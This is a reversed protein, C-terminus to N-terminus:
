PGGLVRYVNLYCNESLLHEDQWISSDALNLVLVIGLSSIREYSVNVKKNNHTYYITDKKRSRTMTAM